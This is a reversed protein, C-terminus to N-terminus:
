VFRRAPQKNSFISGLVTRFRRTVHLPKNLRHCVRAAALSASLRGFSDLIARGYDAKSTLSLHLDRAGQVEEARTEAERGSMGGEPSVGPVLGCSISRQEPPQVAAWGACAARDVVPM